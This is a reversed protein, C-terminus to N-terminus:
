HHEGGGVGRDGGGWGTEGRQYIGRKKKNQHRPFTAPAIAQAATDTKRLEGEFGRKKEREKRQSTGLGPGTKSVSPSNGDSRVRAEGQGEGKKGGSRGRGRKKVDYKKKKRVFKKNKGRVLCPKSRTQPKHPSAASSGKPAALNEKKDKKKKKKVGTAGHTKKKSRPATGTSIGATAVRTVHKTPICKKQRRSTKRGSRTKQKSKRKETSTNVTKNCNLKKHKVPVNRQNIARQVRKTKGTEGGLRVEPTGKKFGKQKATTRYHHLNKHYKFAPAEVRGQPFRKKRKRGTLWV